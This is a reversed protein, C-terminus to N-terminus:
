SKKVKFLVTHPEENIVDLDVQITENFYKSAGMMLGKALIELRKESIYEIELYDKELKKVEFKPLDAEPYLKKVEIHIYTDVKSIVELTGVASSVLFPAMRVLKPFLYVGFQYIIDEVEVKETENVSLIMMVLEEIPYNGAQTYIKDIGNEPELMIDSTEFSFTEEVFEIFETFVAGKM